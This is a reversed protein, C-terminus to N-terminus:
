GIRLVVNWIHKYISKDLMYGGREFWLRMKGAFSLYMNLTQYSYKDAFMQLLCSIIIIIFHIYLAKGHM